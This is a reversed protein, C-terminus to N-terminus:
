KGKQSGQFPKVQEDISKGVKSNFNDPIGYNYCHIVCYNCNDTCESECGPYNCKDKIGLLGNIVACSTFSTLLLLLFSIKLIKKM